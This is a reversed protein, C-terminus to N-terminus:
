STVKREPLPPKPYFKSKKIWLRLAQFHIKIVVTPTLWGYRLLLSPLSVESLFGLAGEVWTALRLQNDPGYYNIDIRSHPFDTKFRFKYYGEVPFFPSVHFVKEARLWQDQDIGGPPHIWYFHKEGFTNNVEILVADLRDKKKCLWFSVPNFAYGFMRPLTHLWVKEAEYGCSDKLFNKIGDRFNITNKNLYDKAFLSLVGRFNKRLNEQIEIESECLFLIFFTPYSFSNSAGEHRSHHVKGQGLFINTM